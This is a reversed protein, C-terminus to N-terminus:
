DLASMLVNAEGRQSDNGERLVELLIERAGDVDGMDVYAQALDLKTAVEDASDIFAFDDDDLSDLEASVHPEEDATFSAAAASM